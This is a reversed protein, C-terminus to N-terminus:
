KALAIPARDSDCDVGIARARGRSTHGADALGNSRAYVSALWLGQRRDYLSAGIGRSGADGSFNCVLRDFLDGM